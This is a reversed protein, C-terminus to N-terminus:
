VSVILLYIYMCTCRLKGKVELLPFLDTSDDSVEQWKNILPPMIVEIYQPNNLVEGVVDALTGVTDYLLLLNRHQYKAFASCLTTLIPQLYPVLDAGAEEELLSFSSCAAEQVRKNNDLIRQLLIQVLPEFYHQRAEHSQRASQVIWACYRGLTWCTISRVLPQYVNM